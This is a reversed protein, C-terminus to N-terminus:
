PRWLRGKPKGRMQKRAVMGRWFLVEWFAVPFSMTGWIEPKRQAEWVLEGARWLASPDCLSSLDERFHSPCAGPGLLWGRHPSQVLKKRRRAARVTFNRVLLNILSYSGLKPLPGSGGTGGATGVQIEGAFVCRGHHAWAQGPGCMQPGLPPAVLIVWDM